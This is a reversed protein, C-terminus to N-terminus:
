RSGLRVGQCLPPVLLLEGPEPRLPLVLDLAGCPRGVVTLPRDRIARDPLEAEPLLGLEEAPAEFVLAGGASTRRQEGELQEGAVMRAEDVADPCKQV